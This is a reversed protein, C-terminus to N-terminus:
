DDARRAHLRREQDEEMEAKTVVVGERIAKALMSVGGQFAAAIVARPLNIRSDTADNWAAELSESPWPRQEYLWGELVQVEKPLAHPAAKM